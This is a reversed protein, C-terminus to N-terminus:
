MDPILHAEGLSHMAGALLGGAFLVLLVGSVAFFRSVNLRVIGNFVLYALVASAVFGIVASLLLAGASTTPALTAFFLVTEIGERGVAVFALLFLALPKGVQVASKAKGRMDAVLTLPHKYMWVIMYTLIAVAVLAAGAAFLAESGSEELFERSAADAVLGLLVAGLVAAAAGALLFRKSEPKGFKAALGALISVIPFRELSERLVILTADPSIM